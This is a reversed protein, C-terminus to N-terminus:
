IRAVKESLLKTRLIRKQLAEQLQNLQSVVEDFRLIQDGLNHSPDDPTLLCISLERIAEGVEQQLFDLMAQSSTDADVALRHLNHLLKGHINPDIPRASDLSSTAPAISPAPPEPAEVVEQQQDALEAQAAEFAIRCKKWQPRIELSSRYHAAAQQVQGKEMLINGLNYHADYMRPNLRVAERYASIAMDLKGLQKYALGLNYYNEGRSSGIQIGRQLIALALDYEELRNYAAGLNIYAGTRKPDLKIVEKFHYIAGHLDGLLFCATAMGFHIEPNDSRYGLAQQYFQRAEQYQSRALAEQAQKCITELSDKAM